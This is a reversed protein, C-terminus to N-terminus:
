IGLSALADVLREVLGALMPSRDEAAVIARELRDRANAIVGKEEKQHVSQVLQVTCEALHTVEAIPLSQAGLTNSLEDVLEAVLRRSEPGLDQAVRLLRAIERLRAAIEGIAQPTSENEM